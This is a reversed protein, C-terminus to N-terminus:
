PRSRPSGGPVAPLSVWSRYVGGPLVEYVPEMGELGVDFRAPDGVLLITMGAPDLHERVVSAVDEATVEELGGLYRAFWGDPLGQARHLMQRAVVQSPSEFAFVYGTTIEEVARRVQEQSPPSDRFDQLIDLLLSTVEITAEAGTATLAGLLGEYRLPTTWVSSAGYALGEDSRVRSMIRSSFGSAGLLHNAIQPAFYQSSDEQRVGGAQAMIVTSQEIDRPLIFVGRGRRIVPERAAPLRGPCDPWPEVFARVLPEAQEWTVDGSIGLILRDRCILLSHLSRLAEVHLRTPSLDSEDMVWGVPHGGYM